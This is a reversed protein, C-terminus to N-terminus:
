STVGTVQRVRVTDGDCKAFVTSVAQPLHFACTAFSSWWGEDPDVFGVVYDAAVVVYDAAVQRGDHLEPDCFYLPRGFIEGGTV